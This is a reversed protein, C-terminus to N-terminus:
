WPASEVDYVQVTEAQGCIRDDAQVSGRVLVRDGDDFGELDGLLTFLNGSDDRMAPCNEGEDTLIGVIASSGAADIGGVANPTVGTEYNANRRRFRSFIGGNNDSSWIKSDKGRELRNPTLASTEYRGDIYGDYGESSSLSAGQYRAEPDLVRVQESLITRPGDEIAAVFIVHGGLGSEPPEVDATFRGRPGTRIESVKELENRNPGGYISIPTDPPFGEARLEIRDGWYVSDQVAQMRAGNYVPASTDLPANSAINRNQRAEIAYAESMIYDEYKDNRLAFYAQERDYTDPLNVIENIRGDGDTEVIKLKTLNNRDDGFFVTVKEGQRFNDGIVRIKGDRPGRAPSISILPPADQYYVYDRRERDRPSTRAYDPLYILQGVELRRPEVSPNLRYLTYLPVDFRWAIEALTDGHRIRYIDRDEYKEIWNAEAYDGSFDDRYAYNYYRDDSATRTRYAAGEYVEGKVAPIYLTEGASVSRPNRIQHNARIIAEVPVDCYEAIDSLTEGRYITVSQECNGDLQEARREGYRRHADRAADIGHDGPKYDTRDTYSTRSYYNNDYVTDYYSDQGARYDSYYQRDNSACAASLALLSVAATKFLLRSRAHTM